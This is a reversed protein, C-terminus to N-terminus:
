SYTLNKLLYYVNPELGHVRLKEMDKARFMVINRRSLMEHLRGIFAAEAEERPVKISKRPYCSLMEMIETVRRPIAGYSGCNKAIAKEIMSPYLKNNKPPTYIISWNLLPVYEDITFRTVVGKNLMDYAYVGEVDYGKSLHEQVIHPTQVSMFYFADKIDPNLFATYANQNDEGLISYVPRETENNFPILRSAPSWEVLESDPLGASMNTHPFESDVFHRRQQM